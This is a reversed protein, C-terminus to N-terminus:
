KNILIRGRVIPAQQMVFKFPDYEIQNQHYIMEIMEDDVNIVQIYKRLLPKDFPNEIEIIDNKQYNDKLHNDLIEQCTIEKARLEGDKYEGLVFEMEPDFTMYEYDDDMKGSKSYNM